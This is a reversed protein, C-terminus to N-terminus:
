RQGQWQAKKRKGVKDMWMNNLIRGDKHKPLQQLAEVYLAESCINEYKDDFGSYSEFIVIETVKQYDKEKLIVENQIFYKNALQTLINRIERRM